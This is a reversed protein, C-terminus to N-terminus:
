SPLPGDDILGEVKQCVYVFHMNEVLSLADMCDENDSPYPGKIVPQTVVEFNNSTEDVIEKKALCFVHIVWPFCKLSELRSHPDGYTILLFVGGPRLVRYIEGLAKKGNDFANPGCVIADLTGKDIVGDFSKTKIEPMNRVDSVLYSLQPISEHQKKMQEIVVKSYDINTIDQFGAEVMEEQLRSTGVGVQLLKYNKKLYYNIIIQLGHYGQYWDFPVPERAYRQDWYAVESYQPM